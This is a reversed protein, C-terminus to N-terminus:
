LMCAVGSQKYCPLITRIIQSLAGGSSPLSSVIEAMSLGVTMTMSSVLIWRRWAHFRYWSAVFPIGTVGNHM